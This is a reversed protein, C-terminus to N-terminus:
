WPLFGSFPLLFLSGEKYLSPDPTCHTGVISLCVPLLVLSLTPTFNFEQFTPRWLILGSESQILMVGSWSWSLCSAQETLNEMYCMHTWHGPMMCPYQMFKLCKVSLVKSPATPYLSSHGQLTRGELYIFAENKLVMEILERSNILYFRVGSYLEGLINLGVGVHLVWWRGLLVNRTNLFWNQLTGM